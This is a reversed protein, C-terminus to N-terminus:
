IEDLIGKREIEGHWTKRWFINIISSTSVAFSSTLSYANFPQMSPKVM